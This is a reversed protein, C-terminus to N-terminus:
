RRDGAERQIQITETPLKSARSSLFSLYNFSLQGLERLFGRVLSHVPNKRARNAM